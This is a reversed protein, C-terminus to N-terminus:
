ETKQTVEIMNGGPDRLFFRAQGAVPRPDPIIEIGADRFERSAAAADSVQYCVHRDSQENHVGEEVSLHLQMVGLEYWAGMGQRTGAPKPIEPLGIVTGYFHKAAAELAAPVTVNVHSFKILGIGM